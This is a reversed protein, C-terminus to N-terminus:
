ATSLSRILGSLMRGIDNNRQILADVDQGLARAIALQAAIEDNSGRAIRVCRAFDPDSGRGAGEALNSVVSVAARRMQNGLDAFRPTLGAVDTIQALALHYVRLNHYRAM